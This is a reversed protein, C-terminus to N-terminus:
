YVIDFDVEGVFIGINRKKWDMGDNCHNTSKLFPGYSKLASPWLGKHRNQRRLRQLHLQIEKRVPETRNKVVSYMFM